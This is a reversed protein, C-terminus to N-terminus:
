FVIEDCLRFSEELKSAKRFGSDSEQTESHEEDDEM